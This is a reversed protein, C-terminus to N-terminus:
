EKPVVEQNKERFKSPTEKFISKFWTIFTNSTFFGLSKSISLISNNTMTLYKKAIDIRVEELISSYTYGEYSLRRNLTRVSVGLQEAVIERSIVGTQVQLYIINRVKESFNNINIDRDLISIIYNEVSAFLEKNHSRIPLDLTKKSVALVSEDQKFLVPCEFFNRYYEQINESAASHEFKIYALHREGGEGCLKILDAWWACKYEVIFSSLTYNDIVHKWKFLIHYENEEIFMMQGLVGHLERYKLFSKIAETLNESLSILLGLPGVSSIDSQLYFKLLLLPDSTKKYIFMFMREFPELPSFLIDQELYKEDIGGIRLLEDREINALACHDVLHKLLQFRITPQKNVM